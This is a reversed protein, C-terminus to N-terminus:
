TSRTRPSGSTGHGPSARRNSPTRCRPPHRPTRKGQRQFSSPFAAKEPLPHPLVPSSIVGGGCAGVRILNCPSSFWGVCTRLHPVFNPSVVERLGSNGPFPPPPDALFVVARVNRVYNFVILNGTRRFSAVLQLVGMKQPDIPVPIASDFAEQCKVIRSRCDTTCDIKPHPVVPVAMIPPAFCITCGHIFGRGRPRVLGANSSVPTNWM